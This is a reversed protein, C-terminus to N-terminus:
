RLSMKERHNQQFYKQAKSRLKDEEAGNRNRMYKNENLQTGSKRSM